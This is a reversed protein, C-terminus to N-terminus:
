GQEPGRRRKMEEGKNMYRRRRRRRKRKDREFPFRFCSKLTRNKALKGCLLYELFALKTFSTVYENGKTKRLKKGFPFCRKKEGPSPLGSYQKRALIKHSHSEDVKLKRLQQREFQELQRARTM